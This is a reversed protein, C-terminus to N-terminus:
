LIVFASYIIGMIASQMLGPFIENADLSNVEVREGRYGSKLMQM